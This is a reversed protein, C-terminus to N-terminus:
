FNAIVIYRSYMKGFTYRVFSFVNQRITKLQTPGLVHSGNPGELEDAGDPNGTKFGPSLEQNQFLSHVRLTGPQRIIVKVLPTPLAWNTVESSQVNPRPGFRPPVVNAPPKPLVPGIGKLRGKNFPCAPEKGSKCLLPQRGTALM